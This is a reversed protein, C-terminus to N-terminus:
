TIRRRCMGYFPIIRRRSGPEIQRLEVGADKAAQRLMQVFLADPMFHSCSCTALYGGRPLIKMARLNIEKYGKRRMEWPRGPSPLHRRTWSLSTM